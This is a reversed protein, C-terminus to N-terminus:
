RKGKPWDTVELDWRVVDGKKNEAMVQVTGMARGEVEGSPTVTAAWNSTSWRIKAGEMPDGRDNLVEAKFQLTEGMPLKILPTKTNLEPGVKRIGDIIAAKVEMASKLVPTYKAAEAQIKASGSSLITVLGLQNVSAVSTDSSSWRVQAMEIFTGDEGFALARLQVTDGKKRFTPLSGKEDGQAANRPGRVRIETPQPKCATATLLALIVLLVRVM